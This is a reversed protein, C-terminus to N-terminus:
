YQKQLQDIANKGIDMRDEREKQMYNVYGEFRTM